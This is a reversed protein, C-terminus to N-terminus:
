KRLCGYWFDEECAYDGQPIKNCYKGGAGLKSSAWVNDGHRYYLEAKMAAEKDNPPNKAETGMWISDAYFADSLGGLM